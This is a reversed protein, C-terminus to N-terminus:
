AWGRVATGGPLKQVVGSGALGDTSGCLESRDAVPETLSTRKVQGEATVRDRVCDRARGVRRVRHRGAKVRASEISPPSKVYRGARKRIRPRVPM